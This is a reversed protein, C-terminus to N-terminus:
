NVDPADVSRAVRRVFEEGDDPNWLDLGELAQPDRLLLLQAISGFLDLDEPAVGREAALKHAAGVLLNAAEQFLDTSDALNEILSDHEGPDFLGVISDLFFRHALWNRVEWAHAVKDYLAGSGVIPSENKFKGLTEQSFARRFRQDVEDPGLRDLDDLDGATVVVAASRELLQAAMMAEAYTAMVRQIGGEVDVSLRQIDAIAVAVVKAQSLPDGM